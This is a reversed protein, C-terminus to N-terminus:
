STTRRKGPGSRKRQKRTRRRLCKKKNGGNEQIRNWCKLLRKGRPGEPSLCVEKNNRELRVIIEDASCHSGKSIVTFDTLKLRMNTYTAPCSCRAPVFASGGVQAKYLTICLTFALLVSRTYPSSKM